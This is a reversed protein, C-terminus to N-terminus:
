SMSGTVQVGNSNIRMPIELVKCFQITQPNCYPRPRVGQEGGLDGVAPATRQFRQVEEVPLSSKRGGDLVHEYVWKWEKEVMDRGYAVDRPMDPDQWRGTSFYPDFAKTIALWVPDFALSAYTGPQRTAPTRGQPVPIDVVQFFEGRPHPKSLALFRTFRPPNFSPFPPASERTAHPPLSPAQSQLQPDSKSAADGDEEEIVIEDPNKEEGEDEFAIEIEDPNKNGEEDEFVIEIEDPNYNVEDERYGVNQGSGGRGNRMPYNSRLRKLLSDTNEDHVVVARFKDHMHGSYFYSPQLYRLLRLLPPSGLSNRDIDSKFHQKRRILEPLNGFREIAQPWDHSMMVDLHENTGMGVPPQFNLQQLKLVNFERTHYASRMGSQTYPLTEDYGKFYDIDKYIGSSGAVRLWGDVIVSGAHGLYYINPALWGGHFLEWLYASSEHNGGIVITTVPAVKEGTYYKYFDGLKRYKVPCAMGELDPYNRMAQFDGCCLLLDVAEGVNRRAERLTAYINDLEGHSCGVVAVKM